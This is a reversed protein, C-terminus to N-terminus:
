ACLHKIPILQKYYINYNFAPSKQNNTVDITNPEIKRALEIFSTKSIFGMIYAKDLTKAISIFVYGDVDKNKINEISNAQVSGEYGHEAFTLLKEKASWTRQKSKIDLKYGNVIIDSDFNNPLTYNPFYERIILEGLAGIIHREGNMYSKSNVPLDEALKYTKQLLTNSISVEIIDKVELM